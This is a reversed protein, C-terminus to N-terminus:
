ATRGDAEVLVFHFVGGMSSTESRRVEEPDMKQVLDARGLKLLGARNADLLHRKFTDLDLGTSPQLRSWLHGVFIKDGIRGSQCRRAEENVRQAFTTLEVPRPAAARPGASRPEAPGPEPAAPDAWGSVALQRLDRGHAGLLVRPVQVQVEDPQLPPCAGIKKSLVAAMLEELTHLEPYGLERCVLAQLVSEVSGGARDPLELERRLLLAVLRSPSKLLKEAEALPLGLAKAPLVKDKLTRWTWRAPWIELGLWVLARQRGAETLQRGDSSLEGRTRLRQLAATLTGTGPPDRYFPSLDRALQLVSPATRCPLLRVLLLIELLDESGPPPSMAATDLMEGALDVWRFM